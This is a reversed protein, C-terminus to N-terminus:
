LAATSWAAARSEKPAPLQGGILAQNLTGPALVARARWAAGMFAAACPARLPQSALNPALPLPLARSPPHSIAALPKQAFCFLQWCEYIYNQETGREDLRM